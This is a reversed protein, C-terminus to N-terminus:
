QDQKRYLLKCNCLPPSRTQKLQIVADNMGNNDWDQILRRLLWSAGGSIGKNPVRYAWARGCKHEVAVLHPPNHSEDKRVGTREHFYMYEMSIKIPGQLRGDVDSVIHKRRGKSPHKDRVKRAAACHRCWFAYPTHTVQHRQYEERTPTSPIKVVPPDRSEPTEQDDFYEAVKRELVEYKNALDEWQQEEEGLKEDPRELEKGRGEFSVDVPYLPQDEESTQPRVTSERTQM